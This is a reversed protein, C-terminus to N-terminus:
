GPNNRGALYLSGFYEEWVLGFSSHMATGTGSEPMGRSIASAASSCIFFLRTGDRRHGAGPLERATDAAARGAVPDQPAALLRV